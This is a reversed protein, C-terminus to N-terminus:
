WGRYWEYIISPMFICLWEYIYIYIYIVWTNMSEHIWAAYVVVVVFFFMYWMYIVVSIIIYWMYEYIGWAAYVVFWPLIM